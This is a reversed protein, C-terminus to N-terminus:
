KYRIVKIIEHKHIIMIDMGFSASTNIRKTIISEASLPTVANLGFNIIIGGPCPKIQGIGKRLAKDVANINSVTKLEWRKGHWIYDATKQWYEGNAEKVLHIDGGLTDHIWKAITIEEKHVNAEYGPDKTINGTKPAASSLYESTVDIGVKNM